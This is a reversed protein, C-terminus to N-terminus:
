DLKTGFTLYTLLLVLSDTRYCIVLFFSSLCGEMSGLLSQLVDLAIHGFIVLSALADVQSAWVWVWVWWRRLGAIGCQFLDNASSFWYSLLYILLVLGYKLKTVLIFCSVVM